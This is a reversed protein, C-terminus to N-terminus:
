IFKFKDLLAEEIENLKRLVYEKVFELFKNYQKTNLAKNSKLIKFEKECLGNNVVFEFNNYMFDDRNELRFQEINSLNKSMGGILEQFFWFTKEMEYASEKILKLAQCDAEFKIRRIPNYGIHNFIANYDDWRGYYFHNLPIRKRIEYDMVSKYEKKSNTPKYPKYYYPLREYLFEKILTKTKKKYIYIKKMIELIDLIHKNIEYPFPLIKRVIPRDVPKIDMQLRKIKAEIKMNKEKIPLEYVSM